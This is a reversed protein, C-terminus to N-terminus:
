VSPSSSSDGPSNGSNKKATEKEESSLGNMDIAADWLAEAVVNPMKDGLEDVDGDTLLRKGTEDALCRVLLRARINTLNKSKGTPNIEVDFADKERATLHRLYFRGYGAVEVAQVPKNALATFFQSRTLIPDM